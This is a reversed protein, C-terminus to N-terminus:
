HSNPIGLSLVLYVLLTTRLSNPDLCWCISRKTTISIFYYVIRDAKRPKSTYIYEFLTEFAPENLFKTDVIKQTFLEILGMHFAM